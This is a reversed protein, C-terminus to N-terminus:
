REERQQTPAKREKRRQEAEEQEEFSHFSEICAQRGCIRCGM